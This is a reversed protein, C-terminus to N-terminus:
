ISYTGEIGRNERDTTRRDLQDLASLCHELARQNQECAFPGSQFSQLRDIVISLLDENQVGNVGNEPVTGDQFRIHGLTLRGVPHYSEVRYLHSANNVDPADTCLVTTHKSERVIRM